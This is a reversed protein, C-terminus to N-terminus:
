KIRKVWKKWGKIQIELTEDLIKRLEKLLDGVKAVDSNNIREKVFEYHPRIRELVDTVKEKGAETIEVIKVPRNNKISLKRKVFGKKELTDLLKGTNARDKLILKALDRQCLEPSSLLVDLVSYEECTIGANFKEFVQSGLLKCYKATLEIQYFITETFHNQM